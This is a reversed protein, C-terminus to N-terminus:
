VHKIGEDYLYEIQYTTAKERCVKGCRCCKYEILLPETVITGKRCNELTHQRMRLQKERHWCHTFFFEETDDDLCFM